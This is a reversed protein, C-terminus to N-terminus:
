AAIVLIEGLWRSQCLPISSYILAFFFMIPLLVFLSTVFPSQEAVISIARSSESIFIRGSMYRKEDLFDDKSCDDVLILQVNDCFGIDQAIISDLTESIYKGVNYVAMVISFKYKYGNEQAATIEKNM